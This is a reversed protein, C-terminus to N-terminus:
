KMEMLCKGHTKTSWINRSTTISWSKELNWQGCNGRCNIKTSLQLHHSLTQPLLNCGNCVRPYANQPSKQSQHQRSLPHQSRRQRGGRPINCTPMPQHYKTVWCSQGQQGAKHQHTWMHTTGRQQETTKADMTHHKHNGSKSTHNHKKLNPKTKGSRERQFKKGSQSFM